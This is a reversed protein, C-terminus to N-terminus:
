ALSPCFEREMAAAKNCRDEKLTSRPEIVEVVQSIGRGPPLLGNREQSKRTACLYLKCITCLCVSFYTISHSFAKSICATGLSFKRKLLREFRRFM